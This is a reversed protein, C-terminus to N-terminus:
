MQVRHERHPEGIAYLIGDVGYARELNLELSCERVLTCETKAATAFHRALFAFPLLLPVCPALRLASTHAVRPALLSCQSALLVTVLM